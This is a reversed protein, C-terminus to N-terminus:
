PNLWYVNSDMTYLHLGWILDKLRVLLIILLSESHQLLLRLGNHCCSQEPSIRSQVDLIRDFLLPTSPIRSIVFEAKLELGLLVAASLSACRCKIHGPSSLIALRRFPTVALWAKATTPALKDFIATVSRPFMNTAWHVANRCTKYCM